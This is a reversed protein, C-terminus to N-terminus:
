FGPLGPIIQKVKKEVQEEAKDMAKAQFTEIKDNLVSTELKLATIQNLTNDVQALGDEIASNFDDQLKDIRTKLSNVEEKWSDVETQVVAITENVTAIVGQAAKVSEQLDKYMPYNAVIAMVVIGVGGIIKKKM